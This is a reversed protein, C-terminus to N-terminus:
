TYPSINPLSTLQEIYLYTTSNKENLIHNTLQKLVRTSTQLANHGSPMRYFTMTICNNLKM